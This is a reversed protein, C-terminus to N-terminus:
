KILVQDGITKVQRIVKRFELGATVRDRGAYDLLEKYKQNLVLKTNGNKDALLVDHKIGKLSDRLLSQLTGAAKDFPIDLEIAGIAYSRLIEVESKSDIPKNSPNNSGGTSTSPPYSQSFSPQSTATFTLTSLAMLILCWLEKKM